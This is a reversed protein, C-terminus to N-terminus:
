SGYLKPDTVDRFPAQARLNVLREGVEARLGKVYRLGVRVARDAEVTCEWSSAAVDIPRVVQGRRQADQIITAPHYFGMPWENLLSAYFAAPYHRKLYASAYVLLAFSAAHSEPFGYNAFSAIADVIQPIDGGRMQAEPRLILRHALVPQLVAKVDDPTVFGRGAIAARTRAM